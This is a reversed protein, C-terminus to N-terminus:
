PCTKPVPRPVGAAAGLTRKGPAPPNGRVLLIVAPVHVLVSTDCRIGAGAGYQYMSAAPSGALQPETCCIPCLGSALLAM